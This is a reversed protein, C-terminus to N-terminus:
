AICQKLIYAYLFLKLFLHSDGSGPRKLTFSPSPFSILSPYTPKLQIPLIKNAVCFPYLHEHFFSILLALFFPLFFLPFFFIGNLSAPYQIEIDLGLSTELVDGIPFSQHPRSLLNLHKYIIEKVEKNNVAHVM